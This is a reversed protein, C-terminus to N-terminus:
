AVIRAHGVADWVSSLILHMTNTHCPCQRCRPVIAGEWGQGVELKDVGAQRTWQWWLPASRHAEVAQWDQGNCDGADCTICGQCPLRNQARCRTICDPVTQSVALIIQMECMSGTCTLQWAGPCVLSRKRISAIVPSNVWLHSAAKLKPLCHSAAMGARGLAQCCLSPQHEAVLM